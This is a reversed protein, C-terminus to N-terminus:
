YDSKLVQKPNPKQQKHEYLNKNRTTWINWLSISLFTRTNVKHPLHIGSCNILKHLWQDPAGTVPLKNIYDDLGISHWYQKAQYCQIFIHAITEQTDHCFPCNPTTSIGIYNLYHLTPLKNHRLLWLFTKFKPQIPLNWIWKFDNTTNPLYSSNKTLKKKYTTQVTFQGNLLQDQQQTYLPLYQKNITKEIDGPIGFCFNARNWENDKLVNSVTFTDHSQPLSGIFM